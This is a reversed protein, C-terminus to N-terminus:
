SRRRGSGERRSPAHAARRDGPRRLRPQRRVPARPARERRRELPRRGQNVDSIWTAARAPRGEPDPGRARVAHRLAARPRLPLAARPLPRLRLLPPGQEHTSGPRCSRASSTPAAASTASSRTSSPSAATSASSGDRGRRQGRLRATTSARAGLAGRGPHAPGQAPARLVLGRQPPPRPVAVDLGVVDRRAHLRRAHLRARLGRGGARHPRDRADDARAYGYAGFERARGADLIVFLVNAGALAKRLADARADDARRRARGARASRRRGRGPRAARAVAGLRLPREAAAGVHLGLRVIEGPRGPVAPRGGRGPGTTARALVRSWLERESAPRRERPDRPVVRAGAAARAPTCCSPRSACSPRRRCGSRTAFSARPRGPALSPVGGRRAGRLASARRAAAPRRPRRRRGPGLTSATSRRRSSGSTPARRTRTPPRRTAAFVFRLRNDGSRSRRRRCRSAPLPPARREPRLQAVRAGNLRVEAAQTKPRRPLARADLVASARRSTPGARALGRGRGQSWLFRDGGRRRSRPLLGRGPLPEAAPTGFLLM